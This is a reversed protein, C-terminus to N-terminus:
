PVDSPSLKPYIPAPPPPNTNTFSNIGQPSDNITVGAAGEVELNKVVLGNVSYSLGNSIYELNTPRSAYRAELYSEVDSVSKPTKTPSPNVLRDLTNDLVNLLNSILQLVDNLLQPKPEVAPIPVPAPAANTSIVLVTSLVSLPVLLRM